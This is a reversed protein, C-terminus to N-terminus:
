GRPLHAAFDGCWLILQPAVIGVAAMSAFLRNEFWVAILTFFLGFFFWGIQSAAGGLRMQAALLPAVTRPPPALRNLAPSENM